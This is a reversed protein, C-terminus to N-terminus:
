HLNVSHHRKYQYLHRFTHYTLIQLKELWYRVFNSKQFAEATCSLSSDDLLPYKKTNKCPVIMAWSFSYISKMPTMRSPFTLTEPFSSLLPAPNTMPSNPYKPTKCLCAYETIPSDSPITSAKLIYSMSLILLSTRLIMPKNAVWSLMSLKIL